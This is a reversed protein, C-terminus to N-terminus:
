VSIRVVIVSYFVRSLILHICHKILLSGMWIFVNYHCCYYVTACVSPSSSIFGDACGNEGYTINEFEDGRGVLEVVPKAVPVQYRM